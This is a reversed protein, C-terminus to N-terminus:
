AMPHFIDQSWQSPHIQRAALEHRSGRRPGIELVSTLGCLKSARVVPVKQPNSLVNSNSLLLLLHSPVSISGTSDM